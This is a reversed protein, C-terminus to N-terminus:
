MTSNLILKSTINLWQTVLTLVSSYKVTLSCNLLSLCYQLTIYKISSNDIIERNCPSKLILKVFIFEIANFVIFFKRSIREILM